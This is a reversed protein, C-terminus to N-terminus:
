AMVEWSKPRLTSRMMKLAQIDAVLQDRSAELFTRWESTRPLDELPGLQSLHKM